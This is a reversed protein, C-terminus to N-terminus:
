YVWDLIEELKVKLCDGFEKVVVEWVNFYDLVLLGVVVEICRVGVVIGMEVVIKFLGIEVMNVVYIGGCLELFVGLVDIVWVEVGYKEGFMVIAGKVKVDVISM